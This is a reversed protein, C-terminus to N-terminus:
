DNYKVIFPKINKEYKRTCVELLNDLDDEQVFFKYTNVVIIKKKYGGTHPDFTIPTLPELKGDKTCIHPHYEPTNMTIIRGNTEVRSNLKVNKRLMTITHLTAKLRENFLSPNLIQLTKKDTLTKM